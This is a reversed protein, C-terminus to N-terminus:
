NTRQWSNRRYGLPVLTYSKRAWRLTPSTCTKGPTFDTSELSADRPLPFPICLPCDVPM